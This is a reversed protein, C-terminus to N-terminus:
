FIRKGTEENYAEVARNKKGFRFADAMGCCYALAENKTRTTITTTCIGDVLIKYNTMM